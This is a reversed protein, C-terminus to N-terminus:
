KDLNEIYNIIHCVIDVTWGNGLLKTAQKDSVPFKYWEPVTQLQKLEDLILKRIIYYGDELNISHPMGDILICGDYVKYVSDDANELNTVPIIYNENGLTNVVQSKDNCSYIRYQQSPQKHNRYKGEGNKTMGILPSSFGGKFYEESLYYGNTNISTNVVDKLKIGKDCPIPIDVKEYVGQENLKGVWFIRKRNQASKTNSNFVTGEFGFEENICNRIDQSMSDNNEYIFYKPKAELLARKYQCFLDWGLGEAKNERHTTQCISWYTCPSGGVVYKIDKYQSFDANFVDGMQKVKPFNFETSKIANKDIEYAIYEEPKINLKKFAISGCSMGDFLSLVKM